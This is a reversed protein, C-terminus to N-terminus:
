GAVEMLTITLPTRAYLAANNDADLAGRGVYFTNGSDIYAQLKYTIASTTAPSDLFEGFSGSRPRNSEGGGSWALAVSRRSGVATGGGIVTSDRLLLLANVSLTSAGFSGGFSILVKSTASTPTITASAGTIDVPTASTTSFVDTKTTSVVQLISGTPMASSPLSLNAGDLIPTGNSDEWNDFRLTSAM